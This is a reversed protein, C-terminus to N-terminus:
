LDVGKKIGVGGDARFTPILKKFFSKHNKKCEMIM